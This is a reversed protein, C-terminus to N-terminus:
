QGKHWCGQAADCGDQTQPNGDDCSLWLGHCKGGSCHDQGTCADSDDCAPAGDAALFLCGAVMDCKDVTCPNSDNCAFLGGGVCQGDQCRDQVTCDVGDSCLAKNAAHSCKGALCADDTCPNHDDCSAPCAAVAEAAADNPKALQTEAAADGTSVADSGAAPLKEAGCAAVAVAM